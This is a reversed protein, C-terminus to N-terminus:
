EENKIIKKEYVTSTGNLEAGCKDLMGIFEDRTKKSLGHHCFIDILLTALASIAVSDRIDNLKVTEMILAAAELMQQADEPLEKSM